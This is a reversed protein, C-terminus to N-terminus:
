VTKLNSRKPLHSNDLDYSVLRPQGPKNTWALCRAFWPRPSIPNTAPTLYASFAQASQPEIFTPNM